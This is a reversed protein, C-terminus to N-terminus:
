PGATGMALPQGGLAARDQQGAPDSRGTGAYGSAQLTFLRQYEGGAAMLAAHSGRECIRGAALVCIIDADRVSGLRHSILLSTHGQRILRLQRHVDAEAEADLGSSPEDLILLDRDARMLGRALALRQWQGGSLAVGTEPNDKDSSDFFTRSLLTDYGRPLGALAPHIGALEAARRVAGADGHRALDGLGINDTATLDYAMYDQFVAGMRGRLEEPALDRLDVGDWTISGRDPDYLRCLLKVLTSKGAGNLGILAVSSGQPISMSVGHLVWPHEPSYRFWVDRIEIGRRLPPVPQPDAALELDPGAALVDLYAGFLLLAQYGGAMSTIMSSLASQVGVAALVFLSVDGVSLQGASAKRITWVLGGATVLAGLLTLAGQTAATQRDLRRQGANIARLETLMRGRLFGGTGFIRLEKAAYLDTQLSGYFIQRRQAPTLQWQLDARRRSLAIESVIAPAASALVIVTLLPSIVWLAGALGGAALASQAAAVGNEIMALPGAQSNARAIQLQDMFAPTEFRRLGPFSNVAQCLQDQTHLGLVRGLQGSVYSSAYPLTAAIVGAGALCAAWIVLSGGTLHRTTLSDLIDRQLWAAAPPIVGGAAALLVVGVALVPSAVWVMGLGRAARRGLERPPVRDPAPDAQDDRRPPM